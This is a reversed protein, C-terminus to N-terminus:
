AGSGIERGQRGVRTQGLDARRGAEAGAAYGTGNSRIKRGKGLEPYAAEVALDVQAKRDVLVLATGPTSSGSAADAQAVASEQAAKLRFHVTSAFGIMWSRRHAAVSQPGQHDFWNPYQHILKGSAQLLLSTYLLEVRELDSEFGFLTVSTVSTRSSYPKRTSHTISRVGLPGAIWGLLTAKVSGYPNSITIKRQGVTDRRKSANALLAEDIGHKAMLEIAKNSYAEAEEPTAAGEAKALLKRVIELKDPNSM